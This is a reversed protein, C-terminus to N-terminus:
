MGGGGGSSLMHLLRPLIQPRCQGLWADLLLWSCGRLCGTRGYRLGAGWICTLCKGEATSSIGSEATSRVKQIYMRDPYRELDAKFEDYDNPLIFFRPILDFAEGKLRRMNYVNRYLYDKRGLEWTGAPSLVWTWTQLPQNRKVCCHHHGRPQVPWCAPSFGPM